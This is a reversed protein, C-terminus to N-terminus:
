PMPATSVVKGTALLMAAFPVPGIAALDVIRVGALPGTANREGAASM